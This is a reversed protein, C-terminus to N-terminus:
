GGILALWEDESLVAVGLERAKDVKWGAGKGVVVYDLTESVHTSVKAGLLCAKSKAEGRTFNELSGTFLITKGAVATDPRHEQSYRFSPPATMPRVRGAVRRSEGSCSRITRESPPCWESYSPPVGGALEIKYRLREVDCENRSTLNTIDGYLLAHIHKCRRGTKWGMCECKLGVGDDLDAEEIRYLNGSSGKMIFRLGPGLCDSSPSPYETLRRVYNPAPSSGGSVVDIARCASVGFRDVMGPRIALRGLLGPLEAIGAGSMAALLVQACANADEGAHHHKFSVGIRRCIDDLGFSSEQSWVKRAIALSCVFSFQPVAVGYLSLTSCLVDVDFQANHAVLWGGEIEPLFESIVEPFEPAGEVDSPGLGHVRSEYVGFRMQKPRILRYERRVVKGCHIWALGMSCPSSPLENATEFDIAVISM